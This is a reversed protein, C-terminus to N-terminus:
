LSAQAKLLQVFIEYVPSYGTSMLFLSFHVSLNLFFSFHM